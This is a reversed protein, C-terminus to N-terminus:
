WLLLLLKISLYAISIFLIAWSIVLLNEWLNNLWGLLGKRDPEHHHAMRLLAYNSLWFALLSLSLMWLATDIDPMVVPLVVTVVTQMLSLWKFIRYYQTVPQLHQFLRHKFTM